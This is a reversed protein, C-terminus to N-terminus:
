FSLKRWLIVDWNRQALDKLALSQHWEAQLKDRSPRTVEPLVKWEAGALNQQLRESSREVRGGENKIQFLSVCFFDNAIRCLLTHVDTIAQGSTFLFWFWVMVKKASHSCVCRPKEQAWWHHRPSQGRIDKPYSQPSHGWLLWGNHQGVQFAAAGRSVHSFAEAASDGPSPYNCSQNGFCCGALRSSIM